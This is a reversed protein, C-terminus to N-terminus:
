IEKGQHIRGAYGTKGKFKSKNGFAGSIFLQATLIVYKTLIYKLKQL